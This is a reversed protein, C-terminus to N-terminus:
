NVIAPRYVTVGGPNTLVLAFESIRTEIAADEEMGITTAMGVDKGKMAPVKSVMDLMTNNGTAGVITGFFNGHRKTRYMQVSPITERGVGKINGFPIFYFTASLANAGGAVKFDPVSSDDFAPEHKFIVKTGAPTVYGKFAVGYISPESNKEHYAMATNKEYSLKTIATSALQMGKTGTSVIVTPTGEYSVNSSIIAKDIHEGFEEINFENYFTQSGRETQQLYGEGTIVEIKSYIDVDRSIGNEDTNSRGHVMTTMKMDYHAAAFALTRETDWAMFDKGERNKWSITVLKNTLNGPIKDTSRIKTYTYEKYENASFVTTPGKISMSSSVPSSLIGFETGTEVVHAPIFNKEGFLIARYSYNGNIKTANSILRIPYEKYKSVIVHSETFILKDFVIEFESRGEGVRAPDIAQVKVVKAYKHKAGIIEVKIPRDDDMDKVAGEGLLYNEWSMKNMRLDNAMTIVDGYKNPNMTRLYNEATLGTFTSPQTRMRFM